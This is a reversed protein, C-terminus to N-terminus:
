NRFGRYAIEAPNLLDWFRPGLVLRRLCVFSAQLEPRWCYKITSNRKYVLGTSSQELSGGNEWYARTNM